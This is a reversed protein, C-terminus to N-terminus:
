TWGQGSSAGLWGLLAGDTARLPDSRGLFWHYAGRGSRVRFSVEGASGTSLCDSWVRRAEEHDDPHLLSLHSDSAAETATGIRLPHDKSLGLYDACRENVFTLGGSRAAFWTHAPMLNLTDTLQTRLPEDM